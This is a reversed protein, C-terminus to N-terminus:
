INQPSVAAGDSRRARRTRTGRAGIDNDHLRRAVRAAVHPLPALALIGLDPETCCLADSFRHVKEVQVAHQVAVELVRIDDEVAIAGHGHGDHAVKAEAHVHMLIADVSIRRVSSLRAGDAADSTMTSPTVSRLTSKQSPSSSRSRWIIRPLACATASRSSRSSTRPSSASQLSLSHLILHSTNIHAASPNPFTVPAM